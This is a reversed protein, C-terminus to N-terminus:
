YGFPLSTGDALLRRKDFVVRFRKNNLTNRLQFTKKDRVINHQPATLVRASEDGGPNVIYNEVLSKVSDFNVNKCCEFTQKIGKVKMEVKGQRTQYAYSKPGASVFEKISDSNLEDTLDGLYNGLPLPTEGQRTTYILSDTDYYLVRRELQEMHSYLKLRAHGTTFAAIFVNDTKNPPPVCADNYCYQIMALNMNLFNFYKVKHTGSFMLSFFAAPDSVIETLIMNSKQAFKGWFSNLCLKAVQRKAPNSEIKSADLLIGQKEHYEQIYKQRGAEDTVNSPYGSAEQKGKLFTQIYERFLTNSREKFHWVEHIEVLRYGKDVAKLVEPTIWVGTLAREEESHSCADSQMNLEACTRCLTFILRGRTSRYPLVPFFLGRPPYLKAKIFGFYSEIAKFDRFIIEPHGVPYFCYHNVYPYLSTFDVYNVTEDDSASYRLTVPCTHGGYLAQRPSLPEPAKYRKMFEKVGDHSQRMENWDHERMVTLKVGYVSKLKSLRDLTRDNLEEFTAGTLPHTKHGQFRQLCGHYFCGLFEFVHHEGNLEYYGDVQWSGFSKEGTNLVHQIFVNQTSMVYELWQIRCDSFRKRGYRYDYPCPLALTRDLLFNTRFVYMCASAITARKFPDLGTQTIFMQRFFLCTKRLIATDNKCYLIAEKKFDFTGHCVDTYWLMFSERNKVSMQDAGYCRAEPYPGVYDLTNESSFKHPFFGKCNESFGMAKPLTALPFPLFAASDIFRLGFDREVFLVLKSGQLVMEPMIGLSIMTKVIVHGDFGRSNHALFVANQYRRTRFRLLFKECCDVGWWDWKEGNGTEVSVYFPVHVGNKDPYTEFDYFILKKEPIFDIRKPLPLKQIFCLHDEMMVGGCIHCKSELCKHPKGDKTQPIHYLRSCKLCKKHRQCLSAQTAARPHQRLERHRTLCLESACRVPPAGQRCDTTFCVNCHGECMHSLQSTYGKYCYMCFYQSGVFTKPNKIGYYHNEHLFMFVPENKRPTSTQFINLIEKTETRYFVVIKRQTVREFKEIDTFCVPTQDSLGAASQFGRGRREAESDTINPYILHALNIAFCLQNDRNEIIYLTKRKKKLIECDLTKQLLRKTGGRPNQVVQVVLELRPDTLVAFNSQITRDLLDQFQTLDMGASVPVIVSAESRIMEGRIELQLLDGANCRNLAEEVIDAVGGLVSGYFHGYSVEEDTQNINLLRRIEFNNFRARTVVNSSNQTSTSPAATNDGVNDNNNNNIPNPQPTPIPRNTNSSTSPQNDDNQPSSPTHNQRSGEGLQPQSTDSDKLSQVLRNVASELLDFHSLDNASGESLDVSDPAVSGQPARDPLPAFFHCESSTQPTNVDTFETSNESSCLGRLLEDLRDFHATTVSSSSPARELLGRIIEDIRESHDSNAGVNLPLTESSDAGNIVQQIDDLM